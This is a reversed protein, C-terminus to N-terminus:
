ALLIESFYFEIVYFQLLGIRRADMAVIAKTRLGNSTGRQLLPAFWFPWDFRKRQFLKGIGADMLM